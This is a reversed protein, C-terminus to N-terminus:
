LPPPTPTPLLDAVINRENGLFAVHAILAEVRIAPDQVNLGIASDEVSGVGLELEGAVPYPTAVEGGHAVQIAILDAGAVRFRDLVVRAGGYSGVAIGGPYPCDPSCEAAATSAVTVNSLALRTGATFAAVGLERSGEIVVRDGVIEAGGNALVSRGLFHSIPDSQTERVTADELEIRTGAHTAGVAVATCRELIARRLTMRSGEMANVCLGTGQDIGRGPEFYGRVDSITVDDLSVTSGPNESVVGRDASGVFAGRSVTLSGGEIVWAGAAYLGGADVGRADDVVVDSLAMTAGNFGVQVGRTADALYIREGRVVAGQIAALAGRALAAHGSAAKTDRVVVDSLTVETGPDDAEIGSWRSDEVVVREARLTSGSLVAIGVGFQEPESASFQTGLVAADRLDLTSGSAAVVGFRRAGAVVVHDVAAQGGQSVRLGYGGTTGPRSDARVDRVVVNRGTADGLISIGYNVVSEIWVNELEVTAASAVWVGPSPGTVTVNRLVADTGSVQVVGSRYAVTTSAVIRTGSACAGLVTVGAPITVGASEHYTGQALVV